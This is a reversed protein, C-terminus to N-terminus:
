PITTTISETYPSSIQEPGTMNTNNAWVRIRAINLGMIIIAYAYPRGM